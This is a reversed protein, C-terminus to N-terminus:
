LLPKIPSPPQAQALSNWATLLEKQHQTAWELVLSRVRDPADEGQIVRLPALGIMLEWKDYFAYFHATLERVFLMRIVIGYFKSLVPM